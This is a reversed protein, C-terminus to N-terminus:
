FYAGLLSGSSAGLLSGPPEPPGFHDLIVKQLLFTDYQRAKRAFIRLFAHNPRCFDKLLAALGISKVNKSPLVRLNRPIVRGLVGFLVSKVDNEVSKALLELKLAVKQTFFTNKSSDASFIVLVVANPCTFYLTEGKEFLIFGRTTCSIEHSKSYSDCGFLLFM